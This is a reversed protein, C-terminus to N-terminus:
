TALRVSREEDVLHYMHGAICRIKDMVFVADAGDFDVGAMECCGVVAAPAGCELCDVTMRSGRFSTTGSRM